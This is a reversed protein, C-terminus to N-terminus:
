LWGRMGELGVGAAVAHLGQRLEDPWTHFPSFLVRHHIMELVKTWTPHSEIEEITPLM